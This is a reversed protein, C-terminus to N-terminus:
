PPVIPDSRIAAPLATADDDDDDDRRPDRDRFFLEGPTLPKPPARRDIGARSSARVRRNRTRARESARRRGSAVGACRPSSVGNLSRASPPARTPSGDADVSPYIIRSAATRRVPSPKSKRKRPTTTRTRARARSSARGPNRTSRRRRPRSSRPRSRPDRASRSWSERAGYRPTARTSTVHCEDRYGIRGAFRCYRSASSHQQASRAIVSRGCKRLGFYFRERGCVTGTLYLARPLLCTTSARAHARSAEIAGGFLFASSSGGGAGDGDRRLSRVFFASSGGGDDDFSSSSTAAGAGGGASAGAGAM